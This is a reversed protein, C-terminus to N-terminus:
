FGKNLEHKTYEMFRELSDKTIRGVPSVKVNHEVTYVKGFNIRSMPDLRSNTKDHPEVELPEKVM